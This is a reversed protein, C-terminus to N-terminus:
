MNGFGLESGLNAWAPRRREVKTLYQDLLRQTELRHRERGEPSLLQWAGRLSNLHGKVEDINPPAALEPGQFAAKMKEMVDTLQLNAKNATIQAAGGANDRGLIKRENRALVALASQWAAKVEPEEDPLRDVHATLATKKLAMHMFSEACFETFQEALYTGRGAGKAAPDNGPMDTIFFFEPRRRLVSWADYFAKGDAVLSREDPQEKARNADETWNEGTILMRQFTAHGAEHVAMRMFGEDREKLVWDEIHIRDKIVAGGGFGGIMPHKSMLEWGVGAAELNEVVNPNEELFDGLGGLNQQVRPENIANVTPLARTGTMATHTWAGHSTLQLAAVMAARSGPRTGNRRHAAVEKLDAVTLKVPAGPLNVLEEVVDRLGDFDGGLDQRADEAKACAKGALVLARQIAGARLPAVPAVPRPDAGGASLLRSLARNGASRQLHLVDAVALTGASAVTPGHVPSVAAAPVPGPRAGAAPSQAMQRDATGM